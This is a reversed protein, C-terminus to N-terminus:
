KPPYASLAKLRKHNYQEEFYFVIFLTMGLCFFGDIGSIIIQSAVQNMQGLSAKLGLSLSTRM